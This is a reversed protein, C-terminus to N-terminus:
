LKFVQKANKHFVNELVEPKYGEAEWDQYLREFPFFPYDSGFLFKNKLRGNIEKKLEAPFYKPSWGHLDCYVNAKHLMVSIMENHFPWPCHAGIVTLYPFDVAIDDIVPIPREYKLRIGGGGPMGAGAATHGVSTKVTVGAEACLGYIPYVRPDNAPIGLGLDAMHYYGISGLDKIAREMEKLCQHMPLDPHFGVWFGAVVDPYDKKLQGVYDNIERVQGIDTKSGSPTVLIVKAEASKFYDTMEQETQYYPIKTKFTAEFFEKMGPFLAGKETTMQTQVDIVKLNM